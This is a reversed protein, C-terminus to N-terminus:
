PRGVGPLDDPDSGTRASDTPEAVVYAKHVRLALPLVAALRQSLGFASSLRAAAVARYCGTRGVDCVVSLLADNRYVLRRTVTLGNKRAYLPFLLFALFDRRDFCYIARAAGPAAGRPVDRRTRWPIFNWASEEIRGAPDLLVLLDREIQGLMEVKDKRRVYPPPGTALVLKAGRRVWAM